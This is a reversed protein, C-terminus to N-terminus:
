GVQRVLAALKTREEYSAQVQSMNESVNMSAKVFSFSLARRVKIADSRRETSKWCQCDM